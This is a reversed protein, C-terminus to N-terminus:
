EDIRADLVATRDRLDTARSRLEEKAEASLSRDGFSKSIRNREGKLTDSEAKLRRQEEDLVVIEDIPATDCREAVAKKVMEPHTRILERSLMAPREFPDSCRSFSPRAFTPLM